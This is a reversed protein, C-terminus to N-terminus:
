KAECFGHRCTGTGCTTSETCAKCAGGVAGVKSEFYCHCPAPPDYLSLNGGESSRTVKMACIPVVGTRIVDDLPEFAPPPTMENGVLLDIVYKVRPNAPATHTIYITPSWPFYLGNRLNYKDFSTSTSDAYYAYRQKYAKFALARVKDRQADYLEAGLIGITKEPATSQAVKNLVENPDALENCKGKAAPRVGVALMLSLMTSRTPPLTYIFNRDTWPEANGFGFTFYGEAATIATQTSGKPVIFTYAQIPGNFAVLSTPLADVQCADLFVNSNAIDLNAGGTIDMTCQPSPKSPDWTPDETASPIYSANQTIKPEPKLIEAVNTCSASTRYVLTTTDRIKKGIAKLLPEQTAGLLVFVPNQSQLASCPLAHASTSTLLVLAIVPFRM